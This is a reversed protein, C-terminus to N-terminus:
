LKGIAIYYLEPTLRKLNGKRCRKAMLYVNRKIDDLIMGLAEENLQVGENSFVKKIDKKTM